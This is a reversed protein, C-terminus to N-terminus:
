ITRVMIMEEKYELRTPVEMWRDEREGRSTMCFLYFGRGCSKLYKIVARM